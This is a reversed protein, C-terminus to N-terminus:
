DPKVGYLVAENIEDEFPKQRYHWPNRDYANEYAAIDLTEMTKRYDSLWVDGETNELYKADTWTCAPTGGWNCGVIGVPVQYKKQLRQAFYYAVAFYFDFNEETCVRWFGFDSYDGRELQGEFSVEPYDFMRIKRNEEARDREADYRLYFEMNSQGGAVWVEGVAIDTFRIKEDGSTITLTQGECAELPPFVAKWKGDECPVTVSNGALEVTIERSQVSSKEQGGTEIRNKEENEDSELTGWIRIAKQRQLVMHNGFIMAPKIKRGMSVGGSIGRTKGDSELIM